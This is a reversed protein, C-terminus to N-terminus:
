LVAAKLNTLFDKGIFITKKGWIGMLEELNKIDSIIWATCSSELFM